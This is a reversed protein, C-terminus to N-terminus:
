LSRTRALDRRVLELQGPKDVDMALEAYPSLHVRGRLGLRASIQGLTQDLTLRRLLLLLLTDYGLVAAQRLPTKRAGILQDWVDMDVPMRVHILNLDGGCIEADRLKIYSRRSHPFRTEMVTREVAVYDLDVLPGDARRVRWDIIDSTVTPIDASAFLVYARDPDSRQAWDLGALSNQLLGGHDDLFTLPKTTKLGDSPSLGLVAIQDVSQAGDLAELVWQVMPKGCVDILAKPGDRTLAYLPDQQTPVKGAAVVANVRPPSDIM